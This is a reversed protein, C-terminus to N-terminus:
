EVMISATLKIDRSSAGVLAKFEGSEFSFFIESLIIKRSLVNLGLL